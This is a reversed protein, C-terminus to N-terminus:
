PALGVRRMLDQFRPEERLTDYRPEVKLFVMADAREDYAKDLWTLAQDKEGLAACILAMRASTVHGQKRLEELEDLVKRAEDRQGAAACAHGLEGLVAAGGSLERAKRFAAVAEDYRGAQVCARGLFLYAVGFNPDMALTQRCQDIAEDYRRAYYLARGAVARIILSLPDIEQARRIEALAEDHRGMATLYESYWQHATAYNPNLALARRYEDEAGAWDWDYQVKVFALSTHAEALTDDLKLAEAAAARARPFAEKPPLYSYDGLLAYCDALGAYALAYGPDKARAQEFQEIAKKLGEETRKNWHYRGVLYAQYAEANDTPRKGLRKKEEGTLRPRLKDTVERAIDDQVALLDTLKRNYQEGWLQRNGRVDVLEVSVVLRDGRRVVRGAVVAQVGLETGAARPDDARGKYRFASSRAIVRLNPLQSLNNILAETIGDSLYEADPDGGDNVFPLVAVSDIARGGWAYRHLAAALLAVLVLAALAAVGWAALRRRGAPGAPSPRSTGSGGAVARLDFAIDRMSQFREAPKKELCHAILRELEAPVKKGSESPPVPEETLLAARIEPVTARFFPSKGTLMEYLVCGFSFIDTRADVPMGLVQEPSMYPVTGMVAGPETEAARTPEGPTAPAPPAPQEVRALGFDLIKISGDSGLFVNEPKLDRHVIGRAHAAALGDAVAIGVALAKNWPLAARSLRDRLTEGELLETVLFPPAPETHFDHVTLVHPHSLAALARAEREFRALADRNQALDEPLVKLAVERGLRVDEARYVTGMGGSGLQALVKYPGLQTGTTLM